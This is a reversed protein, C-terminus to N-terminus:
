LQVEFSKALNQTVKPSHLWDLTLLKSATGLYEPGFCNFLLEEGAPSLHSALIASKMESRKPSFQFLDGYAIRNERFAGQPLGKCHENLHIVLSQVTVAYVLFEYVSPPQLDQWRHTSIVSVRGRNQWFSDAGLPQGTIAILPKGEALTEAYCLSKENGACRAREKSTLIDENFPRFDVEFYWTRQLKNLEYILYVLADQNFAKKTKKDTLEPVDLFRLRIHSVKNPSLGVLLPVVVALLLGVVALRVLLTRGHRRLAGAIRSRSSEEGTRGQLAFLLGGAAIAAFVLTIQKCVYSKLYLSLSPSLGYRWEVYQYALVQVTLYLTILTFAPQIKSWYPKDRLYGGIADWLKLIM